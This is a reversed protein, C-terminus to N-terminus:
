VLYVNYAFANEEILLQRVEIWSDVRHYGELNININHTATFLLKVGNFNNLNTLHDDIMYDGSINKKSGCFIIQSKKIFPFYEHLWHYKEILSQPFEMAASVIYLEFVENLEKIVSQSDAVVKARRFFGPTHPFMKILGPDPFAEAEPKGLLENWKIQIGTVAKYYKIYQSTLDAMVHDMDILLIKKQMNYKSIQHLKM